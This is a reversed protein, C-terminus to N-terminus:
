FPHPNVLGRLVAKAVAHQRNSVDLKIMANNLHFNVTRESMTLLQAIEGSTKGDAVWRLCETERASLPVADTNSLSFVRRTAEHVYAAMLQVVPLAQQTVERAAKDHHNLAFSLIGLEGQPSHVPMSLGDRLGFDAAENMMRQAAPSSTAELDHWQVPVVRQTCHAVVPDVAQHAAEWYHSLWPEPYGNVVVVRAESFRSPVRLAYIFHDFGMARAHQRCLAEIEDVTQVESFGHLDSLLRPLNM